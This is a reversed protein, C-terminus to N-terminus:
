IYSSLGIWDEETDADAADAADDIATATATVTAIFDSSVDCV